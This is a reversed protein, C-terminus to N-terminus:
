LNEAYNIIINQQQPLGKSKPSQSDALLLLSKFSDSVSHHECLIVHNDISRLVNDIVVSIIPSNQLVVLVPSSTIYIKTSSPVCSM